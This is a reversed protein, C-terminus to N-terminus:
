SKTSRIVWKGVTSKLDKGVRLLARGFGAGVIVIVDRLTRLWTALLTVPLDVGIVCGGLILWLRVISKKGSYLFTNRTLIVGVFCYTTMDLVAKLKKPCESILSSYKGGSLACLSNESPNKFTERNERHRLLLCGLM